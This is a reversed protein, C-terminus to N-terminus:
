IKNIHLSYSRVSFFVKAVVLLSFYLVWAIKNGHVHDSAHIAGFVKWQILDMVMEFYM